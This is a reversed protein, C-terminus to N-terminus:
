DNKVDSNFKKIEIITKMAEYCMAAQRYDAKKIMYNLTEENATDIKKKKIDDMLKKIEEGSNQLSLAKIVEQDIPGNVAMAAKEKTIEAELLAKDADMMLETCKAFNSENVNNLFERYIEDVIEGRLVKYIYNM